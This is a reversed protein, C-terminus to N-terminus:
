KGVDTGKSTGSDEVTTAASEGGNTKSDGDEMSALLEEIKRSL